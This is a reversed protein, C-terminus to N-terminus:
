IKEKSIFNRSPCILVTMRVRGIFTMELPPLFLRFKLLINFFDGSRVKGGHRKSFSDFPMPVDGNEMNMEISSIPTKNEDRITRSM